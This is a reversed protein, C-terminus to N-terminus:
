FTNITIFYDELFLLLTLAWKTLFKHETIKSCQAEDTLSSLPHGRIQVSTWFNDPLCPTNFHQPLLCTSSLVCAPKWSAGFILTLQYYYQESPCDTEPINTVPFIRHYLLSIIAYTANFQHGTDGVPDIRPCGLIGTHLPYCLLRTTDMGLPFLNWWKHQLYHSRSRLPSISIYHPSATWTISRDQAQLSPASQQRWLETWPIAKFAQITNGAAEAKFGQYSTLFM